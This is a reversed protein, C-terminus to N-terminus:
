AEPGADEGEAKYNMVSADSTALPMLWVEVEPAQGSYLRLAQGDGAPLRLTFPGDPLAALAARLERVSLGVGVGPVHKDAVRERWPPVKADHRALMMKDGDCAFGLWDPGVRIQLPKAGAKDLFGNVAVIDGEDIWIVGPPVAEVLPVTYRAIRVNNTAMVSAEHGECEIWISSRDPGLFGSCAGIARRLHMAYAIDIHTFETM